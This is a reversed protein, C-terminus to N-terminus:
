LLAYWSAARKFKGNTFISSDNDKIQEYVIEYPVVLIAAPFLAVLEYILLRIYIRLDNLGSRLDKILIVITAFICLTGLSVVVIIPIVFYRQFAEIKNSSCFLLQERSNPCM